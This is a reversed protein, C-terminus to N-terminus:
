KIQYDVLNVVGGPGYNTQILGVNKAYYLNGENYVVPDGTIPHTMSSKSHVRIVDNYTRGNVVHTIGVEEITHDHHNPIGNVNLDFGWTTGVGADKLFLTQQLGQLDATYYSGNEFRFLSNPSATSTMITYSKGNVMTDNGATITYSLNGTYTWYSGKSKPWYSGSGNSGSPNSTPNDSCGTILVAALAVLSISSFLKM